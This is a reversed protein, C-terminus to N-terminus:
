GFLKLHYFWPSYSPCPWIARIPCLLFTCLIKTVFCVWNIDWTVVYRSLWKGPQHIQQPPGCLQGGLYGSM